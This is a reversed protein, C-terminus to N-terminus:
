CVGKGVGNKMPSKERGKTSHLRGREVKRLEKKTVM